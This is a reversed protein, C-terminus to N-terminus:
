KHLAALQRNGCAFPVLYLILCLLNPHLLRSPDADMSGFRSSVLGTEDCNDRCQRPFLFCGGLKKFLTPSTVRVNRRLRVLRIPAVSLFSPGLLARFRALRELRVAVVSIGPSSLYPTHDQLGHFAGLSYRSPIERRDSGLVVGSCRLLWVRGYLSMRTSTDLLKLLPRPALQEAPTTCRM